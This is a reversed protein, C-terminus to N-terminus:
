AVSERARSYAADFTNQPYITAFCDMGYLIPTAAAPDRNVLRIIWRRFLDSHEIDATKHLNIHHAGTASVGLAKLRDSLPGCILPTSAEFLFMAGLYALPSTMRELGRWLAAVAFATPSLPPQVSAPTGGLALYGDMATKRHLTEEALHEALERTLSTDIWALAGSMALGSEVVAPFFWVVERYVERMVGRSLEGSESQMLAQWSLSSMLQAVSRQVRQELQAVVLEGDSPREHPRPFEPQRSDAHEARKDSAAPLTQVAPNM